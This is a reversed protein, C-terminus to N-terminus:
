AASHEPQRAAREGIIRLRAAGDDDQVGVVDVTGDTFGVFLARRRQPIRRQCAVDSVAFANEAAPVDREHIGAVGHLAVDHARQRLALCENVDHVGRSIVVHNGPVVLEVIPHNLEVVQHSACVGRVQAAVEGILAGLHGREHEGRVGNLGIRKHAAASRAHREHPNGRRRRQRRRRRFREPSAVVVMRAHVAKAFVVGTRRKGCRHLVGHILCACCAGIVNHQQRMKALVPRGVDPAGVRQRLATATDVHDDVTM